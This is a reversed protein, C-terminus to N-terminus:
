KKRKIKEKKYKDDCESCIILNKGNEDRHIVEEEWFYIREGCLGCEKRAM